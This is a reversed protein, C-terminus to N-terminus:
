TDQDPHQWCPALIDGVFLERGGVGGGGGGCLGVMYMQDETGGQREPFNMANERPSLTEEM